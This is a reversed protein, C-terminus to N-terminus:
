FLSLKGVWFLSMKTHILPTYRCKICVHAFKVPIAPENTALKTTAFGVRASLNPLGNPLVRGVMVVHPITAATTHPVIRLM